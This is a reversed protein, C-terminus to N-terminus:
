KMKDLLDYLKSVEYSVENLTNEYQSPLTEDDDPDRLSIDELREVIYKLDERYSSSVRPQFYHFILLGVSCLSLLLVVVTCAILPSKARMVSYSIFYAFIILFFLGILAGFIMLPVSFLSSM